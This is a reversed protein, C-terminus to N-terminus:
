GINEEIQDVIFTVTIYLIRSKLLFIMLNLIVNIIKIILSCIQIGIQLNDAYKYKGKEKIHIIYM